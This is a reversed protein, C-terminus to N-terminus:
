LAVQDKWLPITFILNCGKGAESEIRIEGGQKEVFEKCVLLGLGSGLENATGKSVLGTDIRFLKRITQEDMGVGNDSITIEAFDQAATTYIKIEGKLNTFKIANSVLNRLITQLMNKDAFVEIDASSIQVLSINKFRATSTSSVIIDNIVSNLNLREPRFILHGTQSKAWNLLNDLLILTSKASSHIIKIFAENEDADNNGENEILLESYGIISNFPSRLDHAIISFLKDKTANLEKLKEENEIAEEKAIFLGDNAQKLEKNLVEYKENEQMLRHEHEELQAKIQKLEEINNSLTKNNVILKQENEIVKDILPNTIRIFIFICISILITSLILVLISASIFPMNIESTPIKAIIGWNLKEVYAYSAFVRTGRTDIGKLYGSKGHLALFMPATVPLNKLLAYNCNKATDYILFRVSDNEIKVFTIEGNRGISVDNRRVRKLHNIIETENFHYEGSFVNIAAKERKIIDTLREYVNQQANKYLLLISLIAILFAVVVVLATLLLVKRHRFITNMTKIDTTSSEKQGIM